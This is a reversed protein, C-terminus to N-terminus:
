AATATALAATREPLYAELARFVTADIRDGADRGMIELVTEPDLRGRYPRDASLAEAIDAVCLIRSLPDLALGTRGRPYGTGDLKEHHNGAIRAITAFAPVRELIRESLAPHERVVAWEEDTLRDPKDLIRNSIALKGLDHLLGARRLTRLDDADLGLREGLGVAIEAVGESHRGTFPSKADVVRAFAEAIRDLGDDDAVLVRDAPEVATVAAADLSAWFATDHEIPGLADVLAPDFWTGRRRRAIALAGARGGDQWFVEMTQALCLIRGPLSIDEGSLGAPRGGGDWHEDLHRIALAATEDLGIMRAIDAGRECRLEYMAQSGRPGDAVIKRLQRVRALAGGGAGANRVAHGLNAIPSTHDIHTRERQVAHDDAGYLAAIKSANTSCGADKLLLAYFLASGADAGLGVAAAIRMGLLCSRAAHGGPQGHTVDLAHSLAGVVESLRLEMTRTIPM